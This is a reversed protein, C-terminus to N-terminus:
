RDLKLRKGDDDLAGTPALAPIPNPTPTPAAPPSQAPGSGGLNSCVLWGGNENVVDVDQALDQSKSMGAIVQNVQDDTAQSGLLQRVADKAKGADAPDLHDV